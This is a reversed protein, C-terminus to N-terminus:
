FAARKTRQNSLLIRELDKLELPKALVYDAGCTLFHDVDAPMMNGTVGIILGGYGAERLLRTASPGDLNPMVSDMLIADFKKELPAIKPTTSSPQDLVDCIPVAPAPSSPSPSSSPAPDSSPTHLSNVHRIADFGDEATSCIAGKGTLARCLLRRIMLADDVILVSAGNIGQPGHEGLSVLPPSTVISTLLVTHADVVLQSAGMDSEYIDPSDVGSSSPKRVVPLRVVEIVDESTAHSSVPPVYPVYLPLYATFTSGKGLGESSMRLHGQHLAVIKNAVLDYLSLSISLLCTTLHHTLHLFPIDPPQTTRSISRYSPTSVGYASAQGEAM